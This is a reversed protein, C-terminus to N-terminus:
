SIKYTLEKDLKKCIEDYTAALDELKIDSLNLMHVLEIRNPLTNYHKRLEELFIPALLAFEAEPMTLLVGIELINEDTILQSFDLNALYSQM